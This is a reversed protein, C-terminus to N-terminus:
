MEGGHIRETRSKDIWGFSSLIPIWPGYSTLCHRRRHGIMTMEWWKKKNNNTTTITIKLTEKNFLVSLSDCLSIQQSVGWITVLGLASVPRAYIHVTNGM